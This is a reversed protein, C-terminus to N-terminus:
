LRLAALMKDVVRSSDTSFLQMCKLKELGVVDFRLCVSCVFYQFDKVECSLQGLMIIKISKLRVIM